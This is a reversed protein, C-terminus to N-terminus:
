PGTTLARATDRIVKQLEERRRLMTGYRGANGHIPRRRIEATSSVHDIEDNALPLQVNVDVLRLAVASALVSVDAADCGVDSVIKALSFASARHLLSADESFSNSLVVQLMPNTVAVALATALPRPLGAFRDVIAEFHMFSLGDAGMSSLAGAVRQAVHDNSISTIPILGSGLLLLTQVRLSLAGGASSCEDVSSQSPESLLSQRCVCRPILFM